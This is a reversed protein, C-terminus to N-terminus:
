TAKGADEEAMLAALELAIIRPTIANLDCVEPDEYDWPVPWWYGLKRVTFSSHEEQTAIHAMVEGLYDVHAQYAGGSKCLINLAGCCGYAEGEVILEAARRFTNPNIKM